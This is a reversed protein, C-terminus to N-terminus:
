FFSMIRDIDTAIGWLSPIATLHQYHPHSSLCVRSQLIQHSPLINRFKSSREQVEPSTGKSTSVKNGIFLTMTVYIDACYAM